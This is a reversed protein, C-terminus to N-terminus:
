SGKEGIARVARAIGSRMLLTLFGEHKAMNPQSCGYTQGSAHTSM